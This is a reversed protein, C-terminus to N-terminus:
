NSEKKLGQLVRGLRVYLKRANVVDLALVRPKVDGAGEDAQVVLLVCDEDKRLGASVGLIRAPITAINKM